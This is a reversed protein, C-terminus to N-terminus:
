IQENVMPQPNSDVTGIREKLDRYLPITVLASFPVLFVEALALSIDKFILASRSLELSQLLILLTPILVFSYSIILILMVPVFNNKIMKFCIQLHKKSKYDIVVSIMVLNLASFIVLSILLGVLLVFLKGFDNPIFNILGKYILELLILPMALLIIYWFFSRVYKTSEKYSEILSNNKSDLCEKAVVLVCIFTLINLYIGAFMLLVSGIAMGLGEPENSVPMWSDISILISVLAALFSPVILRKWNQWLSSLGTSLYYRPEIKM